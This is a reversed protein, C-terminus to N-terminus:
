GRDAISVPDEDDFFTRDRFGTGVPFQQILASLIIIKIRFLEPFLFFRKVALLKLFHFIGVLCVSGTGAVNQKINVFFLPQMVDAEDAAAVSIQFADANENFTLVRFFDRFHKGANAASELVCGAAVLKGM